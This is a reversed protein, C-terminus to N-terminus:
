GSSWFLLEHIPPSVITWRQVVISNLLVHTPKDQSSHLPNTQIWQERQLGIIHSGPAINSCPKGCSMVHSPPFLVM